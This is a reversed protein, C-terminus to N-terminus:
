AERRQSRGVAELAARVVLVAVVVRAVRRRASREGQWTAAQRAGDCGSLLFAIVVGPCIDTEGSRQHAPGQVRAGSRDASGTRIVGGTKSQTLWWNRSPPVTM